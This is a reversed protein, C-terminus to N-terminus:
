SHSLALPFFTGRYTHPRPLGTMFRLIKFRVLLHFTEVAGLIDGGSCRPFMIDTPVCQAALRWVTGHKGHLPDRWGDQVQSQRVWQHGRDAFPCTFLGMNLTEHETEKATAHQPQHQETQWGSCGFRLPPTREQSSQLAQQGGRPKRQKRNQM